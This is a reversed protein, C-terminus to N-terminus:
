AERLLRVHKWWTHGAFGFMLVSAAAWSLAIGWEASGNGGDPALGVLVEMWDPLLITLTLFAASILGLVVEVWIRRPLRNEISTTLQYSTRRPLRNPDDPLRASTKQLRVKM